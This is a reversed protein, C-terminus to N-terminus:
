KFPNASLLSSMPLVTVVILIIFMEMVVLILEHRGTIRRWGMRRKGMEKKGGWQSNEVCQYGDLWAM